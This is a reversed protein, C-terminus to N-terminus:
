REGSEDERDFQDLLKHRVVFDFHRVSREFMYNERLHQIRGSFIGLKDLSARREVPVAKIQALSSAECSNLIVLRRLMEGQTLPKMASRVQDGFPIGDLGSSWSNLDALCTEMSPAQEVQPVTSFPFALVALILAAVTRFMAEEEPTLYM